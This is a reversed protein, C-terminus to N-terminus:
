IESYYNRDGSQFQLKSRPQSARREDDHDVSKPQAIGRIHGFLYEARSPIFSTYTNLYGLV